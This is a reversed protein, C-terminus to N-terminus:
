YWYCTKLIDLIGQKTLKKDQETILNEIVQFIVDNPINLNEMSERLKHIHEANEINPMGDHVNYAWEVLIDDIIESIHKM